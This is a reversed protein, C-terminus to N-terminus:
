RTSPAALKAEVDYSSESTANDIWTLRVTTAGTAVAALETPAKEGAATASAQNSYDSSGADNIARM